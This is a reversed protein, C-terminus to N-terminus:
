IGVTPRPPPEHPRWAGAMPRKVYVCYQELCPQDDCSTTHLQVLRHNLATHINAYVCYQDLGPQKHCPTMHLQVPHHNLATHGGLM